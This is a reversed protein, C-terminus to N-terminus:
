SRRRVFALVGLALAWLAPSSGGALSATCGSGTLGTETSDDFSPEWTVEEPFAAPSFEYRDTAGLNHNLVAEGRM